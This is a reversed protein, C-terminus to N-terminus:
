KSIGNPIAARFNRAGSNRYEEAESAHIGEQIRIGPVFERRSYSLVDFARGFDFGRLVSRGAHFYIRGGRDCDVRTCAHDQAPNGDARGYPEHGAPKKTAPI